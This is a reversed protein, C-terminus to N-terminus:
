IYENRTSDQHAAALQMDLGALEHLVRLMNQELKVTAELKIRLCLVGGDAAYQQCPLVPVPTGYGWAFAVGEFFFFFVDGV